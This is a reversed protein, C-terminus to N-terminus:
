VSNAEPEADDTAYHEALYRDLDSVQTANAKAKTSMTGLIRRATGTIRILQDADVAEGRVIAAQMTESRMQLAVVQKVLGLDAESLDGGLDDSYAKVLYRFRRGASSRLDVGDLLRGNSVRDRTTPLVAAAAKSSAKMM